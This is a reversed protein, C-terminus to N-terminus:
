EWEWKGEAYMKEANRRLKNLCEEKVQRCRERSLGYVLGAEELTHEGYEGMGFYRMIIDKDRDTIEPENLLLEWAKSRTDMDEVKQSVSKEKEPVHVKIRVGCDKPPKFRDRTAESYLVADMSAPNMIRKGEVVSTLQSESIADDGYKHRTADNQWVSMPLRITSNERMGKQIERNIWWIAYTIFKFGRTPDFRNAATVLGLNGLSILDDIPMGYQRYTRGVHNVVYRLNHTVLEEPTATKEQEPTLPEHEPRNLVRRYIDSIVNDEVSRASATGLLRNDCIKLRKKKMELAGTPTPSELSDDGTSDRTHIGVVSTASLAV